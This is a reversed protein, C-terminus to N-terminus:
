EDSDSYITERSDDAIVGSVAHSRVWSRFAAARETGTAQDRQSVGGNIKSGGDLRIRQYEEEPVLVYAANTRPDIARVLRNADLIRQQEPILQITDM